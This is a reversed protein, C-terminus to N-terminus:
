REEQSAASTAMYFWTLAWILVVLGVTLAAYVSLDGLIFASLTPKALVILLAFGVLLLVLVVTCWLATPDRRAPMSRM